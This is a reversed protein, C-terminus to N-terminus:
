RGDIIEEALVEWVVGLGAQDVVRRVVFVRTGLKLKYGEQLGPDTRCYIWHTVTLGRRQFDAAVKGTVEQIFGDVTTPLDQTIEKIGHKSDRGQSTKVVTLTDTFGGTPDAAADTVIFQVVASINVLGALTSLVYGFYTGTTLVADVTGAGVISAGTDSFAGGVPMTRLQNTAAADGGSITATAGTGDAQDTFSVSAAGPVTAVVPDPDHHGPYFVPTANSRKRTNNLYDVPDLPWGKFRAALWTKGAASIEYDDGAYDKFITNAAGTQSGSGPATGDESVNFGSDQNGNAFDTTNGVGICAMPFARDVNIGRHGVGCKCATCHIATAYNYQIGYNTCNYTLCNIGIVGWNALYIGQDNCNYVTIGRFLCTSGNAYLGSCLLSLGDFNLGEVVWGLQGVVGFMWGTATRQITPRNGSNIIQIAFLGGDTVKEAYTGADLEQGADGSNAGGIFGMYTGYDGAVGITYLANRRKDRLKVLRCFEERSASEVAGPVELISETVVNPCRRGPVALKEWNAELAEWKVRRKVTWYCNADGATPGDESGLWEKVKRKPMRIRGFPRFPRGDPGVIAKRCGEGRPHDDYVTQGNAGVPQWGLPMGDCNLLLEGAQDSPLAVAPLSM